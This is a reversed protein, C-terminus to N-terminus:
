MFDNLTGYEEKNRVGKSRMRRSTHTKWSNYEALSTIGSLSMLMDKTLQTGRAVECIYTEKKEMKVINRMVQDVSYLLFVFTALNRKYNEKNEGYKDTWDQNPRIITMYFDDEDIVYDLVDISFKLIKEFAIRFKPCKTRRLQIISPGEQYQGRTIGGSHKTSDYSFFMKDDFLGSRRFQITPILRHMSGVGLLHVHHKIHDPVDLQSISFMREVDERLGNGLSFSSSAVGAIYKWYKQPVNQLLIDAWKKYWDMSNGQIIMLPKCATELEIFMEIQRTLNQGSKKACDDFIDPDFWKTDPLLIDTKGGVSAASITVPIEDFSMAINSHAAQTRYVKERGEDTISDGLTQM